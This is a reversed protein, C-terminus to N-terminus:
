LPKYRESDGGRSMWDKEYKKGLFENIKGMFDKEM